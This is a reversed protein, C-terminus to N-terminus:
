INNILIMDVNDIKNNHHYQIVYVNVMNKIWLKYINNILHVNKVNM